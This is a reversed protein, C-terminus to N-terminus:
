NLINYYIGDYRRLFGIFVSAYYHFLAFFGDDPEVFDGFLVYREHPTLSGVQSFHGIGSDGHGLAEDNGGASVEVEDVLRTEIILHPCEKVGNVNM